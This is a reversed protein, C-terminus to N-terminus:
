SSVAKLVNTFMYIKNYRSSLIYVVHSKIRFRIFLLLLHLNGIFEFVIRWFVVGGGRRFYMFVSEVACFRFFWDQATNSCVHIVNLMTYVNKWPLSFVKQVKQDQPNRLCKSLTSITEFNLTEFNKIKHCIM